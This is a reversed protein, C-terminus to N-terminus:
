VAVKESETDVTQLAVINVIHKLPESSSLTSPESSRRYYRVCMKCDCSCNDCSFNSITYIMPNIASNIPLVFVSIYAFIEGPLEVGQQSIFGLLSIPVWCCMDTAVIWIMKRAMKIDQSSTPGRITGHCYASYFMAMYGAAIIVFGILTAVNFIAFAYEWGKFTFDSLILPLCFGSQSFYEYPGFYSLPLLPLGSLVIFVIWGLAMIINASRKKMHLHSSFPFVIRFFRDLTMIVLIFVSMVSSLSASFGAFMCITGNVWYYRNEAYEGRFKVDMAAIIIIYISMLLDSVSLNMIMMTNVGTSQNQERLRVGLATLNGIFILIGVAWFSYRLVDSKILDACTSLFEAKCEPVKQSFCCFEDHDSEIERLNALINFMIPIYRTNALTNDRLHITKVDPVTRFAKKDITHIGCGELDLIKLSSLGRFMSSKLFGGSIETSHLNLCTLSELDFGGVTLPAKNKCIGLNRLNKLGQFKGPGINTLNNGSLYLDQLNSLQSFAGSKVIHIDSNVLVLTKLSDLNEFMTSKLSGGQVNTSYLNLMELKTLGQFCNNGLILPVKNRSIRLIKLEGLDWFTGQQLKTLSNESLDLDELVKLNRFVDNDLGDIGCGILSLSKLSREQAQFVNSQLQEALKSHNLQLNGLKTLKKFSRDNLLLPVKNYRIKLVRLNELRGFTLEGIRNVSVDLEELNPVKQFVRSEISQFSNGNLLLKKTNTPLPMGPLTSENIDKSYCYIDEAQTSTPDLCSCPSPARCSSDSPGLDTTVNPCQELQPTERKQRTNSRSGLSNVAVNFHKEARGVPNEARCTFEATDYVEASVVHLLKGEQLIRIHPYLDATIEEWNRFWIISPAPVGSTDCKLRIPEGSVISLNRPVESDNFHPPVWVELDFNHRKEGANSYIICMYRGADSEDANTIQLHKRNSTREISGLSPITEKNRLWEIPYRTTNSVPCKLVTTGQIVVHQKEALNCKKTSAVKRPEPLLLFAIFATLWASTGLFM